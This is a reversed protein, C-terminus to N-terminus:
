KYTYKCINVKLRQHVCMEPKKMLDSKWKWMKLTNQLRLNELHFEVLYDPAVVEDILLRLIGKRKILTVVPRTGEVNANM